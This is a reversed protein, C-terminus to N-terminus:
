ALVGEQIEVESFFTSSGDSKSIENGIIMGLRRKMSPSCHKGGEMWVPVSVFRSKPLEMRAICRGRMKIRGNEVTYDVRNALAFAEELTLRRLGKHSIHYCASRAGQSQLAALSFCRAFSPIGVECLNTGTPRIVWLFESEVDWSMRIEQKDIVHFDDQYAHLLGNEMEKEVTDTMIQIIEEANM